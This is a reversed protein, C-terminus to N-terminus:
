HNRLQSLVSQKGNNTHPGQQQAKSYSYTLTDPVATFYTGDWIRGVFSKTELNISLSLSDPLGLDGGAQIAGGGPAAKLRLRIVTGAIASNDCRLADSKGYANGSADVIITYHDCHNDLQISYTGPKLGGASAAGTGFMAPPLDNNVQKTPRARNKTYSISLAFDTPPFSLTNASSGRLTGTSTALNIAWNWAYQPGYGLDSSVQIVSSGPAVSAKLTGTTGSLFGTDCASADSAGYANGSKDVVITLHDCIGSVQISYTGPKIGAASAAGAGAITMAVAFLFAREMRITVGIFIVRRVAPINGLLLDAAQEVVTPLARDQTLASDPGRVTQRM